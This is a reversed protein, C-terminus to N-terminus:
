ELQHLGSLSPLRWLPLLTSALDSFHFFIFLCLCSINIHRDEPNDRWTTQYFNVSMESTSAVEIMLAIITKIISAALV